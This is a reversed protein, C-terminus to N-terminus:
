RHISWSYWEHTRRATVSSSPVQGLIRTDFYFLRFFFLFFCLVFQIHNLNVQEQAEPSLASALAAQIRRPTARDAQAKIVNATSPAVFRYPHESNTANGHPILTPLASGAEYQVFAFNIGAKGNILHYIFRRFTPETKHRYSRRYVKRSGGISMMRSSKKGTTCNRWSGWDDAAVDEILHTSTSPLVVLYEGPLPRQPITFQLTVGEPLVRRLLKPLREPTLQAPQAHLLRDYVVACLGAVEQFPRLAPPRPTPTSTPSELHLSDDSISVAEFSHQDLGFVFAVM